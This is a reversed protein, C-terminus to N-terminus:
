FQSVLSDQLGKLAFGRSIILVKHRPIVKAHAAHPCLPSKLFNPMNEINSLQGLHSKRKSRISPWERPATATFVTTLAATTRIATTNARKTKPMSVGVLNRRKNAAGTPSKNGIANSGIELVSQFAMSNNIRGSSGCSILVGGLPKYPRRPQLVVNSGGSNEEQRSNNRAHM